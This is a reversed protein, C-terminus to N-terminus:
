NVCAHRRLGANEARACCTPLVRRSARHAGSIVGASRVSTPECAQVRRRHLLPPRLPENLYCDDRAM